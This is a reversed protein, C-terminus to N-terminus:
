ATTASVTMGIVGVMVVVFFSVQPISVSEKFLLISTALVLMSGIGAWVAYALTVNMHKFSQSIIFFGTIHAVYGIIAFYAQETTQSTKVLAIASVNTFIGTFLLLWGM